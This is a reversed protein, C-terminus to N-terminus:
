REARKRPTKRGAKAGAGAKAGSRAKDGADPKGGADPKTASESEIASEPKTQADEPTLRAPVPDKGADAPTAPGTAAEVAESPPRRTRAPRPVETADPNVLLRDVKEELARVAGMLEQVDKRSPLNLLKFYKALMADLSNQLQLSVSSFQHMLRTVEPTRLSQNGLANFQQELDNLAQRWLALPDTLTPTAARSAAPTKEADAKNQTM